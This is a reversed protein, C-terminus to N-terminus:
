ENTLTIDEGDIRVIVDYGLVSMVTIFKSLTINQRNITNSVSNQRIGLKNGLEHQLTGTSQMATRIVDNFKM